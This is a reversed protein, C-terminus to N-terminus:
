PETSMTSMLPTRYSNLKSVTKIYSNRTLSFDPQEQTWYCKFRLLHMPMWRRSQSTLLIERELNIMRIFYKEGKKPGITMATSKISEVQPSNVPEVVEPIIPILCANIPASLQIEDPGRRNNSAMYVISTVDNCDKIEDLQGSSSDTNEKDESDTMMDVSLAVYKNQSVLPSNVQERKFFGRATM